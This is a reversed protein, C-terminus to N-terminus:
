TQPGAAMVGGQRPRNRGNQAGVAASKAGPRAPHRMKVSFHAPFRTRSRSGKTEGGRSVRLVGSRTRPAVPAAPHTTLHGDEPKCSAHGRKCDASGHHRRKGGIRLYLAVGSRGGGDGGIGLRVGIGGGRGRGLAIPEENAGREPGGSRRRDGRGTRLLRPRVAALPARRGRALNVASRPRASRECFFRCQAAFDGELRGVLAAEGWAQSSSRWSRGRRRWPATPPSRFPRGTRWGEHRLNEPLRARLRRRRLGLGVDLFQDARTGIREKGRMWGGHRNRPREAHRPSSKTGAHFRHDNPRHVGIRLRDRQQHRDVMTLEDITVARGRSVATRALAHFPQFLAVASRPGFLLRRLTVIQRSKCSIPAPQTTTTTSVCTASAKLSNGM